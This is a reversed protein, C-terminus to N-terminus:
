PTFQIRGAELKLLWGLAKVFETKGLGPNGELLVHGNTYLAMLSLRTVQEMGYMREGLATMVGRAFHRYDEAVELSTFIKQDSDM